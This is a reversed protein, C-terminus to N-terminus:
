AGLEGGVGQFGAAVALWVGQSERCAFMSPSMWGDGLFLWLAIQSPAACVLAGPVPSRASYLGSGPLGHWGSHQTLFFAGLPSLVM